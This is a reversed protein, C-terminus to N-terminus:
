EAPSLIGMTWLAPQSWASVKGNADWVRVKWFCETRSALPQGAYRVLLSQDSVVKGSDWLDTKGEKLKAASTAVLIQYATQKQNREQSQLMWSMRPQRADIGQPNPLSECRLEAVSVAAFATHCFMLAAAILLSFCRILKVSSFITQM